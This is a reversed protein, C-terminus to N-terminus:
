RIHTVLRNPFDRGYSKGLSSVPLARVAESSSCKEVLSASSVNFVGHIDVRVKVKVKSSENDAQATVKGITFEGAVVFPVNTIESRKDVHFKTM